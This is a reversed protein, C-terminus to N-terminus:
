QRFCLVSSGLVTERLLGFFLPTSIVPEILVTLDMHLVEGCVPNGLKGDRFFDGPREVGDGAAKLSRVTQEALQFADGGFLKCFFHLIGLSLCWPNQYLLALWDQVSLQEM